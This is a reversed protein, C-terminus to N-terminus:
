KNGKIWTEFQDAASVQKAKVRRRRSPTNAEGVCM